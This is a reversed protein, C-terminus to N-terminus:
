KTSRRPRCLHPPRLLGRMAQIGCIAMNVSANVDRDIGSIRCKVGDTQSQCRFVRSGYTQKLKEGCSCCCKSTNYEDILLVLARSSLERLLKKRPCPGAGGHGFQANGFFIIRTTTRKGGLKEKLRNHLAQREESLAHNKEFKTEAAVRDSGCLDRALRATARQSARFRQFRWRKRDASLLEDQLIDLHAYTVDAYSEVQGPSKLSTSSYSNIAASYELNTSRRMREYKEAEKAMNDFRYDSSSKSRGSGKFTPAINESFIDTTRAHTVVEKSGPDVGVAEIWAEPCQHLLDQIEPDIVKISKFIGCSDHALDMERDPISTYGKKVLEARGHPQMHNSKASVLTVKVQVGDTMISSVLWPLDADPNEKSSQYKADDLIWRASSLTRLGRKVRSGKLARVRKREPKAQGFRRTLPKARKNAPRAPGKYTWGYFDFAGSWWSKLSKDDTVNRYIKVESDYEKVQDAYDSQAKQFESTSMQGKRPRDPKDVLKILKCTHLSLSDKDIKIFAPALDFKSMMTFSKPPSITGPTAMTKWLQTRRARVCRVIGNIERQEGDSVTDDGVHVWAPIPSEKFAAVQTLLTRKSNTAKLAPQVNNIVEWIEGRLKRFRSASERCRSLIQLCKGPVKSWYLFKENGTPSKIVRQKKVKGQKDLLPIECRFESFLPRWVEAIRTVEHVWSEPLSDDTDSIKKHLFEDLCTSAVSPNEQMCYRYMARSSSEIRSNVYESDRYDWLAIELDTQMNEKVREEFMTIVHHKNATLMQGTLADRERNSFGNSLIRQTRASVQHNELYEVLDSDDYERGKWTVNSLRAFLFGYFNRDFLLPSLPDREAKFNLYISVLHQAIGLADSTNSFETQLERPVHLASVTDYACTVTTTRFGFTKDYSAFGEIEKEIETKRRNNTTEEPAEEADDDVSEKSNDWKRKRISGDM